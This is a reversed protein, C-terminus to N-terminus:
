GYQEHNGILMIINKPYKEKLMCLEEFLEIQEDATKDFSDFYDGLCVIM